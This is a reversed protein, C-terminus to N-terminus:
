PRHEAAREVNTTHAFAVPAMVAILILPTGLTSLALAPSSFWTASYENSWGLKARSSSNAAGVSTASM